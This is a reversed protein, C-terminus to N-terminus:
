PDIVALSVFSRASSIATVELVLYTPSTRVVEGYNLIVGEIIGVSCQWPEQYEFYVCDTRFVLVAPGLLPTERFLVEKSTCFGVM